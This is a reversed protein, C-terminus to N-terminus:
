QRNRGKPVQFPASFDSQVWSSQIQGSFASFGASVARFNCQYWESIATFISQFLRTGATYFIKLFVDVSSQFQVSVARFTSRVLAVCNDNPFHFQGGGGWNGKEWGGRGCGRGNRRRRRWAQTESGISGREKERREDTKRWRRKM